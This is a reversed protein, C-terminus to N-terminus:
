LIRGNNVTWHNTHLFYAVTYTNKEKISIVKDGITTMLEVKDGKVALVNHTEGKSGQLKMGQKIM